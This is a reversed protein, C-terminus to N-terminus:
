SPRSSTDRPTLMGYWNTAEYGPVGSEAITPLDPAAPSRQASVVAIARVKGSRIHPLASGLQEGIVRAIIDTGGGAPFPVILRVPRSPYTQETTDRGASGAFGTVAQLHALLIAVIIPTRHKSRTM